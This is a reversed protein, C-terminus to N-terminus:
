TTERLDYLPPSQEAMTLRAGGRLRVLAEPGVWFANVRTFHRKVAGRAIRILALATDTSGITAFLGAIIMSDGRAGAPTLVISDPNYMQNFMM